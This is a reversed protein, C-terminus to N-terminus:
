SELQLHAGRPFAELWHSSLCHELSRNTALRPGRQPCDKSQFETLSASKTVDAYLRVSGRASDQVRGKGKVDLARGGRGGGM